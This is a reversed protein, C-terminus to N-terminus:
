VDGGGSNGKSPITDDARGGSHGAAANGETSSGKFPPLPLDNAAFLRAFCERSYEHNKQVEEM